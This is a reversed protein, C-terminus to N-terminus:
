HVYKNSKRVNETQTLIQLNYEVHLGCVNKGNLPIIHDVHHLTGTDATRQKAEEYKVLIESQSAWAPTAQTKRIYRAMHYAAWYASQEKQIDQSCQKCVGHATYRASMHGKACPLGTDFFPFGLYEAAERTSPWMSGENFHKDLSMLFYGQFVRRAAPLM